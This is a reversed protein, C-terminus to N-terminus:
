NMKWFYPTFLVLISFLELRGLLMLLALVWKAVTPVESFNDLPGVSGIAPGVNGLSTAVAGSASVYDMGCATVAITGMVFLALYILLFVLIHTLIRPAVIQKNLKIRIIARPHLIRRFELYSNKIFVLHRILKIGGSTSGACAGTFLLVFFLTTLGPSWATYDATVFGTTTVISIAQFSAIRLSEEAGHDTVVMVSLAITIVLLFTFALYFRYEDNTWASSIKGKLLLYIITYNTGAVFMFALVTYQIVASFHAMSDNKTSFGGTAMTTFAHNIADYFTMGEMWLLLM